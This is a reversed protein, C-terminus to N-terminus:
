KDDKINSFRIIGCTIGRAETFSEVVVGKEKLSAVVNRALENQYERGYAIAGTYRYSDKPSNVILGYEDVIGLLDVLVPLGKRYRIKEISM